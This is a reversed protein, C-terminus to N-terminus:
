AQPVTDISETSRDKLIIRMPNGVVICNDPVDKNVVAGAGIKVNNGIYIGGFIVANAYINVNDGIIPQFFSSDDDRARGKGITVGNRVTLNKGVKFPRVVCYNHDIRFGAAIEGGNIEVTVVPKLFARCLSRLVHNQKTRYYFVNRFPKYFLLCYNLARIGAKSYPIEELYREIDRNIESQNRSCLFLIDPLITKFFCIKQLIIKKNM